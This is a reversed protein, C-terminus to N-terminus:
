KHKLERLSYKTGRWTIAGDRLALFASQLAAFNFVLAAVPCTLFLLASNGMYRGTLTYALAIMAVAILFGAKAWAPALFVGLFPCVCLFFTVACVALVLSIRFKLFAFLNKELNAVVGAAGVAWRLSVLGPGFVVDQRLGANKISEGLKIDDVVEFRLKEYTGIADYASRRILNFAGVGIHDRAKPDRVKWPRMAFTSMVQPFSIMMREGLTKLHATPFLVLHDTATKTAYHMARRLSDPHFVCDADTFLLWDSSTNQAANGKADNGQAANGQTANRQSGLWMAHVKGLWGSPLDHVHIVRLKGASAPEAALREMIAGTQDTSRDNVAVVQYQPYNLRLLSRLAAEIEGEENRAPVVITLSPLAADQPPNWEPLTLDAVESFHLALQLAPVLWILALLLGSIWYLLTWDFVIM